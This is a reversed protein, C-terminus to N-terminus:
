FPIEVDEYDEDKFESEKERGIESFDMKELDWNVEIPGGSWSGRRLKAVHFSMRKDAKMDTDQEMLYVAQADWLLQDTLAIAEGSYGAGGAKKSKTADRSLQHFALFPINFKKGAWRIWDVAQITRDTRNGKFDLMYISDIAVMTPKAIRIAAEMQSAKLGDEYDHIYFDGQRRKGVSAKLKQMEFDTVTGKIVNSASVGSEIVFFREALEMKHMEPSIFLPTGGSRWHHRSSLVAVYTKGVGPRALMYTATGPWLGNTIETLTPWPLEVGMYGGKIKEIFEIVGEGLDFVRAPTADRTVSEFGSVFGSIEEFAGEPDNASLLGSAQDLASAVQRFMKRKMFETVVFSDEADISDLSVRCVDAVLSASPASGHDRLHESFFRFVRRHADSDFDEASVGLREVREFLDDSRSAAYLLGNEIDM